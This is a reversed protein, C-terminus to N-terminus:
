RKSSLSSIFVKNTLSKRTNSERFIRRCHSRVEELEKHTFTRVAATSITPVCIDFHRCKKQIKLRMSIIRFIM